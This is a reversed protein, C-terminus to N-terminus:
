WVIMKKTEEVSIGSWFHMLPQLQEMIADRSVAHWYCYQYNESVMPLTFKCVARPGKLQAALARKGVREEYERLTEQAKENKFYHIVMFSKMPHPHSRCATCILLAVIVIILFYCPSYHM